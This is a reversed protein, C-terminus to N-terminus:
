EIILVRRSSSPEVHCVMAMAKTYAAAWAPAFDPVVMPDTAPFMLPEPALTPTPFPSFSYNSIPLTLPGTETALYSSAMSTMTGSITSISSSTSSPISSSYASTLPPPHRRLHFEVGYCLVCHTADVFTVKSGHHRASALFAEGM